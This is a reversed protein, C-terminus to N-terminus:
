SKNIKSRLHDSINGTESRETFRFISFCLSFTSRISLTSWLFGKTWGTGDEVLLFDFLFRLSLWIGWFGSSSPGLTLLKLWGIFSLTSTNTWTIPPLSRYYTKLKRAKLTGFNPTGAHNVYPIIFTEKIAEECEQKERNREEKEEKKTTKSTSM